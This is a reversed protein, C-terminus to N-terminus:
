RGPGQAEEVSQGGLPRPSQAQVDGPELFQTGKLAVM